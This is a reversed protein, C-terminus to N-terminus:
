LPDFEARRPWFFRRVNYLRFACRLDFGEIQLFAFGRVPCPLRNMRFRRWFEVISWPEAVREVREDQFFELFFIELGGRGGVLACQEASRIEIEDAQRWRRFFDVREEFVIRGAGEFFDDVAQEGRRM